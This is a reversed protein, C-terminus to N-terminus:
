AGPRAVADSRGALATAFAAAVDEVDWREHRVAVDSLHPKSVLRMEEGDFRVFCGNVDVALSSILYSVLASIREPAWRDGIVHETSLPGGDSMATRAYPAFCNVRVGIEPMSLAWSYTLSAVAGKTASYAWVLRRGFSASSSVNIISGGRGHAEMVKAAEMGCLITGMLNIDVLRRVAEPDDQWPLSERIIGANNVLGTVAGLESTALGFMERVAKADTVSNISARAAGGRAVIMEATESASRDIDNVLVKAGRSALELAHARGLGRGAGTVVVVEGSLLSM